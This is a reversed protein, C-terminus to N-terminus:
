GNFIVKKEAMGNIPLPKPKRKDAANKTKDAVQQQTLRKINSDPM